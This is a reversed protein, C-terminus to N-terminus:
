EAASREFVTVGGIIIRSAGAYGEGAICKGKGNELSSWVEFGGTRTCILACEFPGGGLCVRGSEEGEFYVDDADLNKMKIIKEEEENWKWAEM